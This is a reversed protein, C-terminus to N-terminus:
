AGCQDRAFATFLDGGNATPESATGLQVEKRLQAASPSRQLDLKRSPREIIISSMIILQVHEPPTGACSRVFGLVHVTENLQSGGAAAFRHITM